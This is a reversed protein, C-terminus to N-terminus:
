MQSIEKKRERKEQATSSEKCGNLNAVNCDKKNENIMQFITVLNLTEKKGKKKGSVIKKKEKVEM